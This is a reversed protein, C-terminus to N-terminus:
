GPRARLKLTVVEAARCGQIVPKVPNAMPRDTAAKQRERDFYDTRSEQV